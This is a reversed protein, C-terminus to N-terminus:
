QKDYRTAWELGVMTSACVVPLMFRILPAEEVTMVKEQIRSM